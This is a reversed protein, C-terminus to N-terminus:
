ARHLAGPPPSALGEPGRNRYPFASRPARARPKGRHMQDQLCLLDPKHAKVFRRVLDLRLRVSNINWTALRFRMSAFPDTRTRGFAVLGKAGDV